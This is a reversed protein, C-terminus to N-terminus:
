FPLDDWDFPLPEAMKKEAIEKPDKDKIWEDFAKIKEESVDNEKLKEVTEEIDEITIWETSEAPKEEVPTEAPKVEVPNIIRDYCRITYDVDWECYKKIWDYNESKWASAVMDGAGDSKPSEWLM